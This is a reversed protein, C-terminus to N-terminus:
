KKKMETGHFIFLVTLTILIAYFIAVYCWALIPYIPSRFIGNVLYNAILGYFSGIIFMSISIWKILGKEFFAVFIFPFILVIYSLQFKQYLLLYTLLLVATQHYVWKDRRIFLVLGVLCVITATLVQFLITHQELDITFYSQIITLIGQNGPAQIPDRLFLFFTDPAVLYFPLISSTIIIFFILTQIIREKWTKSYIWIIPAIFVPFYKLGVGLGIFFTGLTKNGREYLYIPLLILLPLICEDSGWFTVLNLFFPNISYILAIPFAYKNKKKLELRYLIVASLIIALVFFIRFVYSSLMMSSSNEFNAYNVFASSFDNTGIMSILILPSWLYPSLPAADTFIDKFPILGFLIGKGRNYLVVQDAIIIGFDPNIYHVYVFHVILVILYVMIPILILWTEKRVLLVKKEEKLESSKGITM